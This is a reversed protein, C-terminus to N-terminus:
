GGSITVCYDPNEWLKLERLGEITPTLKEWFWAAVNEATPNPLFDNLCHHDCEALAADWVQRKLEEFDRIMGDNPNPRGEVAIQLRYNHGHMRRCPGDYHPLAHAAPFHFDVSLRMGM